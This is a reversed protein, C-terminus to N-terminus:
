LILQGESLRGSRHTSVPGPVGKGRLCSCPTEHFLDANPRDSGEGGLPGLSREGGERTAEGKWQALEQIKQHSRVGGLVM